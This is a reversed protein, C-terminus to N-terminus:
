INFLLKRIMQLLKNSKSFVKIPISHKKKVYAIEKDRINNKTAYTNTVQGHWLYQVMTIEHLITPPGFRDFLQRYYECDMLWILKEDFLPVDGNRITLCSHTGISNITAINKNLLPNQQKFVDKRNETHVYSSVLWQTSSNFNDVIKKLSNDNYFYDDQCLVKILDGESHKICNNINASSSGRNLDNKFYRLRFKHEWKKCVEQVSDNVSHDSIIVEYNTYSQKAIIQFGFDLCDAGYGHMEYCPIAISIKM